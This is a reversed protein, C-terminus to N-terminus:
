IQEESALAKEFLVFQGKRFSIEGARRYGFREYLRLSYPNQTFTDLRICDCGRESILRETRRMVEAAIGQNQYAPHVCLRHIVAPNSGCRWDGESYEDDQRVNIVVVALIDGGRELVHMEGRAIDERLLDEGPYIEDWQEIGAANMHAIAQLFLAVVADADRPEAPRFATDM